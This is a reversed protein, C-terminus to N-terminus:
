DDGQDPLVTYKQNVCFSLIISVYEIFYITHFILIITM